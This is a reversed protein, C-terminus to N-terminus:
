AATLRPAPREALWRRLEIVHNGIFLKRVPHRSRLLVAIRPGRWAAATVTRQIEMIPPWDVGAAFITIDRLVRQIRADHEAARDRLLIETVFLHLLQRRRHRM